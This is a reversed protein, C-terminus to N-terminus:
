RRNMKDLVEADFDRDDQRSLRAVAKHLQRMVKRKQRPTLRHDVDRGLLRVRSIGGVGGGGSDQSYTCSMRATEVQRDPKKWVLDERKFENMITFYISSRFVKSGM